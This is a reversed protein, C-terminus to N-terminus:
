FINRKRGGPSSVELTYRDKIPDHVDLVVSLRKSFESCDNLSIGGEKDLFVRLLRNSSDGKLEIDILELGKDPFQENITEKIIDILEKRLAGKSEKM